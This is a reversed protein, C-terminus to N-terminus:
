QMSGTDSEPQVPLDEMSDLTDLKQRIKEAAPFDEKELALRLAAQLQHIEFGREINNKVRSSRQHIQDVSSYLPFEKMLEERTMTDITTTKDPTTTVVLIPTKYRLALAVAMFSSSVDPHYEYCVQQLIEEGPPPVSLKGFDKVAVRYSFDKNQFCVEDLTCTPLRIRSRFWSHLQSYKEASSSEPLKVSELIDQAIRNNAEEECHIVTMQALADPPLLAGAMDVGALLQLITLAEPSTAAGRQDLPDNTLQLPWFANEAIQLIVYFGSSHVSVGAVQTRRRSSALVTEDDDTSLYTLASSSSKQPKTLLKSPILTFSSTEAVFLLM